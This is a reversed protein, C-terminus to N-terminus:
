LWFSLSISITQSRVYHWWTKPIFLADGPGLVVEKYQEWPFQPFKSLYEHDLPRSVDVLSTNKLAMDPYANCEPDYLRIYKYGVVQVFVNDCNDYHLPTETGEPGFWGNIVPDNDSFHCIDPVAFDSGLFSQFLDYQAVYGKPDNSKFVYEDIYETLIMVKQTWNHQTYNRGIEVPVLRGKALYRPNTWKELAPWWSVMNRLVLPTKTAVAMTEMLEIEDMRSADIQEMSCPLEKSNLKPVPFTEPWNYQLRNEPSSLKEVLHEILQREFESAAKGAVLLAYDLQYLADSYGLETVALVISGVTHLAIWGKIDTTRYLMAQAHDVLARLNVRDRLQEYFERPAYRLDGECNEVYAELDRM